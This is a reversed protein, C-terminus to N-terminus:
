HGRERREVHGPQWNEGSASEGTQCEFDLRRLDGIVRQRESADETEELLDEGFILHLKQIVASISPAPLRLLEQQRDEMRRLCLAAEESHLDNAYETEFKQKAEEYQGSAREWIGNSEITRTAAM